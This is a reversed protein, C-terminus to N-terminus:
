NKKKNPSEVNDGEDPEAPAVYVGLGHIESVVKELSKATRTSGDTEFEVKDLLSVSESEEKETEAQAAAESRGQGRHWSASALSNENMLPVVEIEGDDVVVDAKPAEPKEQGGLWIMGGAVAAVVLVGLLMGRKGDMGQQEQAM